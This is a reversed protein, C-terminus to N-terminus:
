GELKGCVQGMGGGREQDHETHIDKGETIGDVGRLLRKHPSDTDGNPVSIHDYSHDCCDCPHDVTREEYM